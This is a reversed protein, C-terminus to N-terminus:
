SGVETVLRLEQVAEKKVKDHEKNTNNPVSTEEEEKLDGVSTTVVDVSSEEEGTKRTCFKEKENEKDRKLNGFIM